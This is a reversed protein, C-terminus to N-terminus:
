IVRYPTGFAQHSVAFQAKINKKPRKKKLFFFGESSTVFSEIDQALPQPTEPLIRTQPFESAPACVCADFLGPPHIFARNRIAHPHRAASSELCLTVM